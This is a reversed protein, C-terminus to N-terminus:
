RNNEDNQNISLPYLGKKKCKPCKFLRNSSGKEGIFLALFCKYWKPKFRHDCKTCVRYKSCLIKLAITVTAGILAILLLLGILWPVVISQGALNISCATFSMIILFIVPLSLLKKM